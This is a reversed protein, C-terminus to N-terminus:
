HLLPTLASVCCVHLHLVHTLNLCCVYIDDREQHMSQAAFCLTEEYVYRREVLHEAAYVGSPLRYTQLYRRQLGADLGFGGRARTADVWRMRGGSAADSRRTLVPIINRLVTTDPHTCRQALDYNWPPYSAIRTKFTRM